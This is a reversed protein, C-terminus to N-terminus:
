GLIIISGTPDGDVFDDIDTLLKEKEATGEQVLQEGDMQTEGAPTTITSFKRLARGLIVKAEAISYLQIWLVDRYEADTLSAYAELFWKEDTDPISLLELEGRNKRWIYQQDNATYREISELFQYSLEFTLLSSGGADGSFADSFLNQFIQFQFPDSANLGSGPKIIRIIQNINETAPIQYIKQDAVVSLGYFKRDFNDNGRHMFVRKAREFAMTFDASKLEVDIINGGLSSVIENNFDLELM